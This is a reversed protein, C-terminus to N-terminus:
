EPHGRLALADEYAEIYQAAVKAGDFDGARQRAAEGMSTIKAPDQLLDIVASALEIPDGPRVLRAVGGSVYEFAPIASAVVACGAAMAELVVVGFSEAGANPAVHIESAALEHRKEEESVRDLFTVGAMEARFAGIVHLDAGPVAARIRPWAELMVSLGKRPDDRGLFSVRRRVTPGTAYDDVDVGNPIIRYEVLGEIASGAVPSVATFVDIGRLAQRIAPRGYRYLRRVWAPPDAHFTAVKASGPVSVAAVSVMPVLPEHVHVVDFGALARRVSGVVRPDIRVPAMSRNITLMTTRGPLVEGGAGEAGPGVLRADVGAEGLWRVIRITQDQGGGPIDLDYPCVVAVRM